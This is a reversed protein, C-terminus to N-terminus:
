RYLRRELAERRLRRREGLKLRRGGTWPQPVGLKTDILAAHQPSPAIGLDGMIAAAALGGSEAAGEMFGQFEPSTHEGIFHLNGERKGELEWFSWQGPKYCTYSGKTLEYTPWHMRVASDPVYAAQAGPWIQEIDPLVKQHYEEPTGDGSAVGGEGGLFNTLIGGTGEQGTSSEWTQQLPLDTYVAGATNYQEKWFRSTYATMVKANTGYGLESIITRKEDSLTLGSLDVERLLSFPLAFVVHDVVAEFTSGDARQFGLTFRGEPGDKASVLRTELQIKGELTKALMTPFSDNGLHTHYREDSEGFIAFDGPNDYDIFYLLNLCSQETAELGYEGRYAVRLVEHLEGFTDKPCNADLWEQLTTNDIEEFYADDSEAKDVQMAMTPAVAVFQQVITDEPVEAGNIYYVDRKFGTPEDALRDDLTLGLEESLKWLTAHNTDILEGGLECIQGDPFMDRGTYMRGGVRKAAEYVTVAVGAEDLRYACHIGAMGGGVVAVEVTPEPNTEGGDCGAAPLAAAAAAGASWQLIARRKLREAEWARDVEAPDTLGKQRAFLARALARRVSSFLPSRAM